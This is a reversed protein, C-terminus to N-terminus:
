HAVIWSIYVAFRTIIKVWHFTIPIANWHAKEKGFKQNKPCLFGHVLCRSKRSSWSRCNRPVFNESELFIKCHSEFYVVHSSECWRSGWNEGHFLDLKLLNPSFISLCRHLQLFIKACSIWHFIAWKLPFDCSLYKM